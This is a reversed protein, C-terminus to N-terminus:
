AADVTVTTGASIDGVGYFTAVHSLGSNDTQLASDYLLAADTGNDLLIFGAGTAANGIAMHEDIEGYLAANLTSGTL